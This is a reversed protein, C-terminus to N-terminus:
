NKGLECRMAAFFDAKMRVVIQSVRSESVNYHKAIDKLIIRHFVASTFIDVDRVSHKIRMNMMVASTIKRVEGMFVEREVNQTEDIMSEDVYEENVADARQQRRSVFERMYDIMAGRVRIMAYATFPVKPNSAASFSKAAEFLGILAAQRLDVYLIHRPTRRAMGWAMREAFEINDKVIRTYIQKQKEKEM